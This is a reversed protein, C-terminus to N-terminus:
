EAMLGLTESSEGIAEVSVLEVLHPLPSTQKWIASEWDNFLVQAPAVGPKLKLTIRYRKLQLGTATPSLRTVTLAPQEKAPVRYEFFNSEFVKERGQVSWRWGVLNEAKGERTQRKEVVQLFTTEDDFRALGFGTSTNFADLLPLKAIFRPSRGEIQYLEREALPISTPQTQPPEEGPTPEPVPGFDTDRDSRELAVRTALATEDALRWEVLAFRGNMLQRTMVRDTEREYPARVRDWPASTAPEPFTDRESVVGGPVLGALVTAEYRSLLPGCSVVGGKTQPALGTQSCISELLPADAQPASVEFSLLTSLMTSQERKGAGSAEALGRGTQAQESGGCALLVLSCWASALERAGLCLM